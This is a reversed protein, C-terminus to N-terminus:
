VTLGAERAAEAVAKVRGHYRRGGRDFVAKTLGKEKAAEAIRRGLQGAGEVTNAAGGGKGCTAASALVAGAMDDVLQVCIHKNSIAVCVRPCEATGVIKRRVRLHRRRRRDKRTKLKMTM